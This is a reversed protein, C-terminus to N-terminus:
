WATLAGDVPLNIGTIYSAGSGLLFVVPDAIEGVEAMRGMPTQDALYANREPENSDTMETRTYGPSIANVRIGDGVWEVALTRSLQIVGAKSANYGVHPVAGRNFVVGSISAINVISGGHERMVEHEALCSFLVGTLNVDLVREWDETSMDVTPKLIDIGACNVGYRVTGLETARQAADRMADRDRVDAELPLMRVGADDCVARVRSFDAGERDLVAVAVGEAAIASVIALGIGGAAGTVLAVADPALAPM